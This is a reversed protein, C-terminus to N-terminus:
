IAVGFKALEPVEIDDLDAKMTVYGCADPKIPVYDDSGDNLDVIPEKVIPIDFEASINADNLLKLSEELATRHEPSHGSTTPIKDIISKRNHLTNTASGIYPPPQPRNYDGALNTTSKPSYPRALSNIPSSDYYFILPYYIKSIPAM